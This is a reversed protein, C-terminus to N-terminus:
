VHQVWISWCMATGDTSSMTPFDSLKAKYPLTVHLSWPRIKVWPELKISHYPLNLVAGTWISLIFVASVQASKKFYSDFQLKFLHTPPLGHKGKVVYEWSSKWRSMQYENARQIKSDPLLICTTIGSTLLYSSLQSATFCGIGYVFISM